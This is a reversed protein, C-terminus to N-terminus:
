IFVSEIAILRASRRRLDNHLVKKGASHIFLLLWARVEYKEAVLVVASSNVSWISARACSAPIVLLTDHDYSTM